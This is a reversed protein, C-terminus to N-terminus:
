ALGPGTELEPADREGIVPLGLVGAYFRPSREVDSRIIAAHHIRLLV